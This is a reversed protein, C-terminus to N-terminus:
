HGVGADGSFEEEFFHAVVGFEGRADVFFPSFLGLAQGTSPFPPNM